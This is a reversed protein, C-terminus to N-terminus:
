KIKSIWEFDLNNILNSPIPNFNYFKSFVFSSSIYKSSFIQPPNNWYILSIRFFLIIVWMVLIGKIVGFIAGVISNIQALIPMKFAVNFGKSIHRVVMMIIGFIISGVVIRTLNIFFPSVIDILISDPTESHLIKSLRSQGIKFFNLLFMFYSPIKEIDNNFCISGLKSILLKRLYSNYIYISVKSSVIYSIFISALSGVFNLLPRVVGKKWGNISFM